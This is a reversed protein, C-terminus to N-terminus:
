LSEPDGILDKERALAVIDALTRLESQLISRGFPTLRYYKRRSDDMAPDPRDSSAEIMNADTLRNITFYLSGPGLKVTGRSRDAVEQMIRYGHTEGDAMALLVHFVASTMKFPPKVISASQPM